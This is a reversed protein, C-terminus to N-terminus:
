GRHDNTPNVSFWYVSVIMSQATMCAHEGDDSMMGWRFLLAPGLSGPQLRALRRRSLGETVLGAADGLATGLLAGEIAKKKM